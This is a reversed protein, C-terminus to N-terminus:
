KLAEFTIEHKVQKGVSWSYALNAAQRKTLSLGRPGLITEALVYIDYTAGFRLVVYGRRSAKCLKRHLASM